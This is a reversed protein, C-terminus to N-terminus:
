AECPVSGGVGPPPLAPVVQDLTLKEPGTVIEGSYDLRRNAMIDELDRPSVGLKEDEVLDKALGDIFKHCLRHGEGNGTQGDLKVKAGDFLGFYMMNLGIKMSWSWCLEGIRKREAGDLRGLVLKAVLRRDDDTVHEVTLPMLDRAKYATGGPDATTREIVQGQRIFGPAGWLWCFLQAGM